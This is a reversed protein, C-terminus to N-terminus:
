SVFSLRRSRSPFIYAFAATKLTSPIAVNLHTFHLSVYLSIISICVKANFWYIEFYIFFLSSM